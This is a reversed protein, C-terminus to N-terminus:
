ELPALQLTLGVRVPQPPKVKFVWAGVVQSICDAVAQEGFSAEIHAARAAPTLDFSLRLDGRLEPQTRLAKEYCGQFAGRRAQIYADLEAPSVGDGEVTCPKFRVLGAVRVKAAPQGADARPPECGARGPELDGAGCQGGDPASVVLALLLAVM